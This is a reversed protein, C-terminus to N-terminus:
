PLSPHTFSVSLRPYESRREALQSRVRRQAESDDVECMVHHAHLQQRPLAPQEDMRELDHAIKIALPIEAEPRDHHEDRTLVALRHHTLDEGQEEQIHQSHIQDDACRRVQVGCLLDPISDDVDRLAIFIQGPLDLVDLLRAAPLRQRKGAPPTVPYGRRVSFARAALGPVEHQEILEALM